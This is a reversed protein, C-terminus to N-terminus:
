DFDEGELVEDPPPARRSERSPPIVEDVDGRYIDGFVALAYLLFAIVGIVQGFGMGIVVPLAATYLASWAMMVLSLIGLYCAVAVLKRTRFKTLWTKPNV